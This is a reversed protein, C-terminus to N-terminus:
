IIQYNSYGRDEQTHLMLLRDLCERSPSKTANSIKLIRKHLFLGELKPFDSSIREETQSCITLWLHRTYQWDGSMDIM